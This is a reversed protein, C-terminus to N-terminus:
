GLEQMLGPRLVILGWVLAKGLLLVLGLFEIQVLGILGLLKSLGPSLSPRLNLIHGLRPGVHRLGFLKM